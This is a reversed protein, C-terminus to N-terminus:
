DDPLPVAFSQKPEGALAGRSVAGLDPHPDFVALLAMLAQGMVITSIVPRTFPHICACVCTCVSLVVRSVCVCVYVCTHTHMYRDWRTEYPLLTDLVDRRFANVIADYNGTMHEVEKSEDYPQWDFHAHGVPPMYRNLYREFTRYAQGTNSGFDRVEVLRADCDMFVLYQPLRPKYLDRARALLANRGENWSSNCKEFTTNRHIKGSLSTYVLQLVASENGELETTDREQACQLLYLFQPPAM